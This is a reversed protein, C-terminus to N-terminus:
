PRRPDNERPDEQGSSRPERLKARQADTLISRIELRAGVGSKQMDARIAAMRDIEANIADQDPKESRLLKRLDLRAMQLDARKQVMDRGRADRVRAIRDRQDQSLDLQALRNHYVRSGAGFHGQHHHARTWEHGSPLATWGGEDARVQSASDRAQLAVLGSAGLFLFAGVMLIRKM